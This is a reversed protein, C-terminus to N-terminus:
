FEITETHNLVCVLEEPAQSFLLRDYAQAPMCRKLVPLCEALDNPRPGGVEGQLLHFGFDTYLKLARYSGPQTHLYVPYGDPSIHQMVYSFLGRGIGKGELPKLVKFWHITTIAGYAKWAFCTGVPRDKEDCAFLCSRFFLDGHPAYVSDFFRQMYVRNENAAQEDDFPMAMWLGLEQPRCHRIHYGEPLPRLASADLAPCMMFLNQDPIAERM